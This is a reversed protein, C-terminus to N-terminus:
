SNWNERAVYCFADWDLEVKLGHETGDKLLHELRMVVRIPQRDFKYVLVPEKNAAKAAKDVQDWWSQSWSGKKYRKCEIVYPFSNDDILIDGRDASRYQELDRKATKVNLDDRLANCITREFSAGKQRGNVMDNLKGSV